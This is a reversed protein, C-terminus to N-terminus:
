WDSGVAAELGSLTGDSCVRIFSYPREAYAETGMNQDQRRIITEVDLDESACHKGCGPITM